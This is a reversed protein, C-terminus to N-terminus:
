WGSCPTGECRRVFDALDLTKSGGPQLGLALVSCSSVLYAAGLLWFLPRELWRLGARVAPRSM